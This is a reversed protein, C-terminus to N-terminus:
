NARRFCIKLEEVERGRVKMLKISEDQKTVYYSASEKLCEGWVYKDGYSALLIRNEDTKYLFSKNNASLWGTIYFAILIGLVTLLIQMKSKFVYNNDFLDGISNVLYILVVPLTSICILYGLYGHANLYDNHQFLVWPTMSIFILFLCAIITEVLGSTGKKFRAHLIAAFSLLIISFEFSSSLLQSVDISILEAPYGYYGSIGYSFIFSCAYLLALVISAISIEKNIM